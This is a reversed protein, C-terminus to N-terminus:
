TAAEQVGRMQGEWHWPVWRGRLRRESDLIRSPTVPLRLINISLTDLVTRFTFRLSVVPLNCSKRNQTPPFPTYPFQYHSHTQQQSWAPYISVSRLPMHQLVRATACTTRLHPIQTVIGATTHLVSYSCRLHTTHTWLNLDCIRRARARERRSFRNTV